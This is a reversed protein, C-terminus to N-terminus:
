DDLCSRSLSFILLPIYPGKALVGVLGFNRLLKAMGCFWHLGFKTVVNWNLWDYVKELDLKIAM